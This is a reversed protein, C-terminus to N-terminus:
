WIKIFIEWKEEPFAEAFHWVHQMVAPLQPLVDYFIIVCLQSGYSLGSEGAYHQLNTNTMFSIITNFSLSAEM